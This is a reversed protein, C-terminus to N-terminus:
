QVSYELFHVALYQTSLKWIEGREVCFMVLNRCPRQGIVVKYYHNPSISLLTTETRSSFPFLFLERYM